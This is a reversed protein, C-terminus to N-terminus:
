STRARHKLIYHAAWVGVSAGVFYPIGLSFLSGLFVWSLGSFVMNLFETPQTVLSALAPLFSVSLFTLIVVSLGYISGTLEISTTSLAVSHEIKPFRMAAWFYAALGNLAAYALSFNSFTSLWLTPGLSLLIVVLLTSLFAALGFVLSVLKKASM